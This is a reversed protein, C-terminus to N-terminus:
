RMRKFLLAVLIFFAAGLAVMTKTDMAPLSFDSAISRAGGGNVSSVPTTRDSAPPALIPAVTDGMGPAIANLADRAVGSYDGTQSATYLQSGLISATTPNAAVWGSVAPAAAFGGVVAGQKVFMNVLSNKEADNLNEGSQLRKAADGSEAFSKTVENSRLAEDVASFGSAMTSVPNVLALAGGALRRGATILHDTDGTVMTRVVDTSAEVGATIPSVSAQVARGVDSREFSERTNDWVQAVPATVQEVVNSVASVADSIPNRGGM